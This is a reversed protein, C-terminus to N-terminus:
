PSFVQYNWFATPIGNYNIDAALNDSLNLIDDPMIKGSFQQPVWRDGVRLLYSVEWQGVYPVRVKGWSIWQDGLYPILTNSIAPVFSLRIQVQQLELPEDHDENYITLFYARESVSSIPLARLSAVNKESIYVHPFPLFLTTDWYPDRVQCTLGQENLSLSSCPYTPLAQGAQEDEVLYPPAGLPSLTLYLFLFILNHRM